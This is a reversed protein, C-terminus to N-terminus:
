VLWSYSRTCFFSVQGARFGVKMRVRVKSSWGSDPCVWQLMVCFVRAKEGRRDGTRAGGSPGAGSLADEILGLLKQYNEKSVKSVASVIQGQILRNIKDSLVAESSISLRCKEPLSAFHPPTPHPPTFRAHCADHIFFMVRVLAM